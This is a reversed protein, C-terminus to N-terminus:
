EDDDDSSDKEIEEKKATVCSDCFSSIEEMVEMYDNDDLDELKEELETTIENVLDPITIPKKKPVFRRWTPHLVLSGCNQVKSIGKAFKSVYRRSPWSSALM